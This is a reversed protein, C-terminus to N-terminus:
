QGTRVGLLDRSLDQEENDLITSHVSSIQPSDTDTDTNISRVSVLTINEKERTSPINSELMMSGKVGEEKTNHCRGKLNVTTVLIVMVVILVLIFSMVGFALMTLSNSQLNTPTDQTADEPSSRNTIEKTVLSESLETDYGSNNAVSSSSSSSSSSPTKSLEMNSNENMHSSYTTSALSVSKTKGSFSAPTTINLDGSISITGRHQAPTVSLAAPAETVSTNSTIRTEQQPTLVPPTAKVASIFSLCVCFVLVPFLLEM